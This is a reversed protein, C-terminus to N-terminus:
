VDKSSSEWRPGAEVCGEGGLFEMDLPHSQLLWNGQNLPM